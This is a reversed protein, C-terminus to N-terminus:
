KIGMAGFHMIINKANAIGGRHKFAEHAPRYVLRIKKCDTDEHPVLDNSDRWRYGDKGKCLPCERDMDRVKDPHGCLDHYPCSVTCIHAVGTVLTRLGMFGQGYDAGKRPIFFYGHGKDSIM